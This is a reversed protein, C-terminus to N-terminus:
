KLKKEVTKKRTLWKQVPQPYSNEFAKSGEGITKLIAKSLRAVKDTVKFAAKKKEYHAIFLNLAKDIVRLEEKYKKNKRYIIMLRNYPQELLPRQKIAKEYLATAEEINGEEEASKAQKLYGTYHETAQM